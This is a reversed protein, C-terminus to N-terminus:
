RVPKLQTAKTRYHKQTTKTSGHQLLKAAGELDTALDAARKRMDRMYMARIAAALAPENAEDAKKAAKARVEDWRERLMRASLPRGNGISILMGHTASSRRRRAVLDPM